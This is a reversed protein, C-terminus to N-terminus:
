AVPNVVHGLFLIVGTEIDRILFLLPRDVTVQQEVPLGKRQMVVAGAAAAETGAEDVMVAAQHYVEDIFLERTGDM